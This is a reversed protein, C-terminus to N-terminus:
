AVFTGYIDRKMQFVDRVSLPKDVKISVPLGDGLWDVESPLNRSPAALSQVRWQRRTSYASTGTNFGFVAAFDVFVGKSADYRGTKEAESVLNASYLFAGSSTDIERLVFANAIAAIHDPPLLYAAWVVGTGKSDPLIHFVWAENGDAITLGEGGEVNSVDAAYYGFEDALAPIMEVACRATACRELVVITLFSLDVLPGECDPCARRPKGYWISACTSEGIAVGKDNMIGFLGEVISYTKEVEPIEGVVRSEMFEKTQWAARQPLDKDISEPKWVSSRGETIFHPYEAFYALVDKSKADRHGGETIALRFDCDLCDANHTSITSGDTTAGPAVLIATCGDRIATCVEQHCLILSILWQRLKM